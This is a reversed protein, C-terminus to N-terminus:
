LVCEGQLGLIRVYQGYSSVPNGGEVVLIGLSREPLCSEDGGLYRERTHHIAGVQGTFAKVLFSDLLQTRCPLQVGVVRLDRVLEAHGMRERTAGVSGRVGEGVRYPEVGLVPPRPDDEPEHQELGLTGLLRHALEDGSSANALVLHIDLQHRREGGGRGTPLPEGVLHQLPRALTADLAVKCEHRGHLIPEFRTRLGRGLHEVLLERGIQQAHAKLYSGLLSNFVYLPGRQPAM